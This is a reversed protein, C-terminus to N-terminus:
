DAWYPAKLERKLVKGIPNKPLDSRTEVGSLRQGKGLRENAWDRIEDTGANQDDELVVLALPTEGWKESPIGIVACERVAPHRSLVNELDTAFVNFGGSIIMDKKRDLLYLFGADDLRGIDGSKFFLRGESDRWHMASTADPRNEYGKMMIPSRGVIEGTKGPGLEKGEDDVIRVECGPTPQGVSDLKDPNANAVLLTSVGGETLGYIEILMGPWEDVIKKKLEIRLPASTCLKVQFSSLDFDSFEPDRLIRDYQVPVLMAHTVRERQSIELFRRADFKSMMVSTAGYAISPLWATMTTNSYLPTSVLTVAGPVFGFQQCGNTFMSRMAHTHVIGKPVGTTGSSYIINFDEAGDLVVEPDASSAVKVWTEFDRYRGDGCELGIAGGDLLGVRELFPAANDRLEESVFLVKSGSDKMMMELQESSAMSPLPVICAGASLTGLFAEVAEVSNRSLLAVRDGKKVGMDALANAVRNVRAGLEAFTNRRSGFVIATRQPHERVVARFLSPVDQGPELEIPPADKSM